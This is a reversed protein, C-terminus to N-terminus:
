DWIKPEGSLSMYRLEIPTPGGALIGEFMDVVTRPKLYEFGLQGMIAWPVEINLRGKKITAFTESPSSEEIIAEKSHEHPSKLIKWGRQEFYKLVESYNVWSVILLAGTMLKIRAPEPFPFISFPAYNRVNMYRDLSFFRQVLDGRKEWINVLKRAEELIAQMEEFQIKEKTFDCCEIVLHEGIREVAAGKKEANKIIKSVNTDYIEPNLNLESIVALGEEEEREGTNFFSIARRLDQKQRTIRGSTKHGKKVEVFEFTGENERITLDGLKLFNTLDNFVAIGKRLNFVEGFEHMEAELGDINIHKKGSKKAIESLVVRDYDFLRWAIGDSIDRIARCEATHFFLEREIVEIEKELEERNPPNSNIKVKREQKRKKYEAIAKESLVLDQLMHMQLKFLPLRDASRLISIHLYDELIMRQEEHLFIGGAGSRLLRRRNEDFITFKSKFKEPTEFM